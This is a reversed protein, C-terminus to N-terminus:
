PIGKQVNGSIFPEISTGPLTKYYQPQIVEPGTLAIIKKFDTIGKNFFRGIYLVDQVNITWVVDGKNIPDLHNIQIGVNGDPHPGEYETIEVNKVKLIREISM